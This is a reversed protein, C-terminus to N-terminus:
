NGTPKEDGIPRLVPLARRQRPESQRPESQRPESQRLEGSCFERPETGTEFTRKVKARCESSAVKGTEPCIDLTITGNGSGVPEDAYQHDISYLDFSEDLTHNDCVGAPETGAIFVEARRDFCQPGALMGTTPDIEVTVIGAPRTFSAAGLGPRHDLAQKMFDVWMPLAADSAKMRLDSNDDFGVWVACIMNPTYGVFWGDNSTGTKGAIAGKIGMARLKSATGADVVSEMLNTMMYAVQPTFVRVRTASLRDDDADADADPSSAKKIPIPRLAVGDNAFATYAGALALPTVESTGLAMSPYPRLNSLGCEEGLQSINGLGVRMALEVTPVNLSRALAERLTVDRNSYGGHYNAPKYEKRGGDYTFSQPRDSLQSAATYARSGLAAAYVFPKFTSGPQRMADTARNLQSEEYSRGGVMALVEGTHADIAVLAAQIKEPESGKKNPRAFIKDLRETQKKVSEYAARQLLPDLTTTIRQRASLGREGFRDELFRQAYDLFYASGYDDKLVHKKMRIPEQKAATAEDFTIAETEVMADLVHSRRETARKEDRETTYRNPAHILGALFASEGLTLDNVNKDFYVQAAQAFGHVAFTGSQGLYVENFYHEFIKEKSLRSELIVAMAVEKLKRSFTRDSSLFANKILQQTITSGGQAVEGQNLDAKAARLIGRWDIGNHNFFRRDEVAVIAKKLRDPIDSFSVSIKKRRDGDRLSALLEGEIFASDLKEGTGANTLSIVRGDRNFRIRVPNQRLRSERAPAVTVTDADAIFSASSNDESLSTKMQYGAGQLYGTLENLPIRDGVSIKLPASLLQVSNDFSPRELRADIESALANYYHISIVSFIITIAGAILLVYPQTVKATVRKFVPPVRASLADFLNSLTEKLSSERNDAMRFIVPYQGM